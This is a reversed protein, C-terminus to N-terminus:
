PGSVVETVMVELDRGAPGPWRISQGVRLGLLASGIPALVSVRGHAADAEAPWSLTLEHRTGSAAEICVVRSGMAVVDAPMAEPAILTARSIEDALRQASDVDHLDPHALVQELRAADRTSVVIPPLPSSKM